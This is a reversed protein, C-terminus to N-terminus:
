YNDPFLTNLLAAYNVRLVSDRKESGTWAEDIKTPPPAYQPLTVANDRWNLFGVFMVYNVKGEANKEM